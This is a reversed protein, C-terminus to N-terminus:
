AMWERVNRWIGYWGILYLAALSVFILAVTPWVPIGGGLYLPFYAIASANVAAMVLLTILPWRRFRYVVQAVVFIVLPMLAFDYWGFPSVLNALGVGVALGLGYAPSILALPMLLGGVRFQVPGFSVPALAITSVAYAAAILGAYVIARTSIQTRQLVQSGM